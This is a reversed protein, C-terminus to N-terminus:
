LQVFRDEAYVSVPRLQEGRWEGFLMLPRGGSLSRLRWGDSPACELAIADGSTEAALWRQGESIPVVERLRAPFRGMWPQLALAQAREALAAAVSAAVVPAFPVPEAHQQAVIARLAIASPYFALTADVVSGAVLSVDLPQGTAAFTLVLASRGSELGCLWVRQVRLRGDEDVVRGTVAWRDRLQEGALVEERSVTFGVLSRVDARLAQPLEESRRSASLLLQLLGLEELLSEVWDDSRSLAIGGLRRVREALAGAQADVLRAAADDWFAYGRRRVQALGQRALDHLWRELEELGAEVREARRARRRAQEAPDPAAAPADGHRQPAREARDARADLWESVWDPEAETASASTDATLLLLGIAHKCPVKRSPCSCRFAPGRLDVQTQYPKSGSGQCLGWVARASQGVGTWRRGSALSRGAKLSAGDPALGEVQQGTLPVGGM